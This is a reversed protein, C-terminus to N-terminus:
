LTDGFFAQLRDRYSRSTKLETGDHLLMRYEGNYHARLERIREANVITSRHIRLFRHPDLREDMAAMTERLLHSQVGVHLCVYDGAAEIWDIEEAKVFFIRGGTKIVFREAAPSPAPIPRKEEQRAAIPKVDTLLASLRRGVASDRRQAHHTYAREVAQYFRDDDIPKLLYDLAHVDFARLAHEDFATVFIVSPMAAAGVARLVDFGDLGPMQVDLFVLDPALSRIADVAERGNECDGVVEVYPVRQLRACIGRRALPEDDVVLTRLTM